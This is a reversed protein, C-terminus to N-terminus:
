NDDADKGKHDKPFYQAGKIRFNTIKPVDDTPYGDFEPM